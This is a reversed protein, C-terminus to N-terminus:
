QQSWEAVHLLNLASHWFAPIATKGCDLSRSLFDALMWTPLMYRSHALFVCFVLCGIGSTLSVANTEMVLTRPMTLNSDKRQTTLLRHEMSRSWSLLSASPSASIESRSSEVLSPMASVQFWKLFVQLLVRAQLHWTIM